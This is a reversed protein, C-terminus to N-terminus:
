KRGEAIKRLYRQRRRGFQEIQKKLESFRESLEVLESKTADLEMDKEGLARQVVDFAPNLNYGLRVAKLLLDAGEEDLRAKTKEDEPARGTEEILTIESHLKKSFDWRLRALNKGVLSLGDDLLV